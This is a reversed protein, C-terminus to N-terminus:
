MEPLIEDGAKVRKGGLVDLDADDGPNFSFSMQTPTRVKKSATDFMAGEHMTYRTKNFMSEDFHALLSETRANATHGKSDRLIRPRCFSSSEFMSSDFSQDLAPEAQERELTELQATTLQALDKQPKDRERDLM